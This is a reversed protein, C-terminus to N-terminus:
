ANEYYNRFYFCDIRNSEVIFRHPKTYIKSKIIKCDHTVNAEISLPLIQLLRSELRLQRPCSILYYLSAFLMYSSSHCQILLSLFYSSDLFSFPHPYLLFFWPSPSHQSALVHSGNPQTWRCWYPSRVELLPRFSLSIVRRAIALTRTHKTGLSQRIAYRRSIQAIISCQNM